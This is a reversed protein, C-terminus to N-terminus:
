GPSWTIATAAAIAAGLSSSFISPLSGPVIMGLGQAASLVNGLDDGVLSGLDSGAASTQPATNDQLVKCALEFGVRTPFEYDGKFHEIVITFEFSDWALIVPQGARRARDLRQAAAVADGVEEAYFWGQWHIDDDDPGMADLKRVGGPLQHVGLRQAGGFNLRQPAAFGFAVLDAIEVPFLSNM